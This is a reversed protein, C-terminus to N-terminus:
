FLLILSQFRRYRPFYFLQYLLVKLNTHYVILSEYIAYLLIRIM